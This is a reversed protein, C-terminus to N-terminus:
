GPGEERRGCEGNVPVREPETEARFRRADSASQDFLVGWERDWTERTRRRRIVGLKPEQAATSTTSEYETGFAPSISSGNEDVRDLRDTDLSRRGEMWSSGGAGRGDPLVVREGWKSCPASNMSTSCIVCREWKDSNPAFM